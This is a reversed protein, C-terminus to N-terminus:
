VGARLFIELPAEGTLWAPDFGRVRTYRDEHGQMAQQLLIKGNQRFELTGRVFPRAKLLFTVKEQGPGVVLRSPTVVTIPEHAHINIHSRTSTGPLTLSDMVHHAVKCGELYCCDGMIAPHLLNGAAFYAPDSCRLYQDTAPGAAGPALQLCSGKILANEASFCGTFLVGDCPITLESQGYPRVTISEVQEIGNISVIDTQAYFRTGLLPPLLHAPWYFQCAQQPEIMAVPRMGGRWLTWFASFSVTESGIIVPRQFPKLGRLTVFHQLAGTNLIGTPRMGSVLRASRPTERAGTAIIVSQAEIIREGEPTSVVLEGGPRLAMVSWATRIDVDATEQRLRRAFGPGTLLRKFPLVGFSPHGCHRAAGGTEQERELVCIPGIGNQSLTLAAALGAPGGGIIAVKMQEAM